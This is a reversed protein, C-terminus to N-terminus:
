GSINREFHITNGFLLDCVSLSLNELSEFDDVSFNSQFHGIRM